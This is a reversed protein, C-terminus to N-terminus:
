LAASTGTRSDSVALALVEPLESGARELYLCFSTIFFFFSSFYFIFRM